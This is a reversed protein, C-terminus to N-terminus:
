CCINKNLKGKQGNQRKTVKGITWSPIGQKMLHDVITPEQSKDAVIVM